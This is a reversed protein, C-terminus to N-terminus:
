STRDDVQEQQSSGALNARRERRRERERERARERQMERKGERDREREHPKKKSKVFMSRTGPNLGSRKKSAKDGGEETCIYLRERERERAREREGGRESTHRHPPVM